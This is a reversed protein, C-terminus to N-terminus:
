NKPKGNKIGLYNLLAKSIEIYAYIVYVKFVTEAMKFFMILYNTGIEIM